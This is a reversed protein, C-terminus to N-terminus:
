YVKDFGNGISMLTYRTHNVIKYASFLRGVLLKYYENIHHSPFRTISYIIYDIVTYM